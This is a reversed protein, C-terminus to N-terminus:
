LNPMCQSCMGIISGGYLSANRGSKAIVRITGYYTPFRLAVKRSAHSSDLALISTNWGDREYFVICINRYELDHWRSTLPQCEVLCGTEFMFPELPRCRYDLLDINLESKGRGFKDERGIRMEAGDGSLRCYRVEERDLKTLRKSTSKCYIGGCLALFLLVALSGSQGSM